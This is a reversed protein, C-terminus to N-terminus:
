MERNPDIKGLDVWNYKPIYKEKYKEIDERGILVSSDYVVIVYEAFKKSNVLNMSNSMDDDFDEVLDRMIGYDGFMINWGFEGEIMCKFWNSHLINWEEEDCDYENFVMYGFKDDNIVKDNIDWLVNSLKDIFKQNSDM